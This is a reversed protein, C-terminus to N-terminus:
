NIKDDEVDDQKIILFLFAHICLMSLLKENNEKPMEDLPLNFEGGNIELENM